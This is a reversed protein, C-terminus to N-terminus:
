ASSPMRSRTRDRPSPSTYLLCTLDQAEILKRFNDRTPETILKNFQAASDAFAGGGALDRLRTNLAGLKADFKEQESYFNEYYAGLRAGFAQLGGSANIIGLVAEGSLGAFVKVSAGLSQLVAQTQNIESVVKSLDELSASAGLKGLMKDAWEPLDIGDLAKRVDQSVAALYEASGASGDSFQRPAWKSTRADNWNVLVNDLQKIVLSGWAPDKSSDDAFSTAMMYGAAKGFTTATSDLMGVVSQALKATMENADATGMVSGFGDGWSTGGTWQGTPTSSLGAAASYM